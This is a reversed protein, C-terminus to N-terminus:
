FKKEKKLVKKKELTNNQIEIIESFEKFTKKHQFLLTKNPSIKDLVSLQYNRNVILQQDFQSHFDVITKSFYKLLSLTVPSDNIFCRTSGKVPVERRIIIEDSYCDINESTLINALYQFNNKFYFSGEIIAKTANTRVLDPTSKAGFLLMLAEVIISKGSGTEGVLVNFGSTFDIEINDIIIFNQIKLTSLM